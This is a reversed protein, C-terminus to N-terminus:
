INIQEGKSYYTGRYHSHKHFHQNMLRTVTRNSLGTFDVIDKRKVKDKGFLALIEYAQLVANENKLKCGCSCKFYTKRRIRSMEIKRCKPCRLGLKLDEINYYHIRNDAGKNDHMQILADAFNIMQQTIGKCSQLYNFVPELEHSFMVCKKGSFGTLHFDENIFIIKSILKQPMEYKAILQKLYSDANDLQIFIDKDTKGQESMLRNNQYRYNGSYNKIDFHLINNATIIIFDFQVRVPKMINIDWIIIYEGELHEIMEFFKLEGEFGKKYRVFKYYDDLEMRVRSELEYLYAQVTSPKHIKKIM